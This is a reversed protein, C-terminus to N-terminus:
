HIEMDKGIEEKIGEELNLLWKTYSGRGVM